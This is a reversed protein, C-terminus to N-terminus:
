PNHQLYLTHINVVFRRTNVTHLASQLSAIVREHESNMDSYRTNAQSLDTSLKRQEENALDLQTSLTSVAATTEKVQELLTTITVSAQSAEKCKSEHSSEM